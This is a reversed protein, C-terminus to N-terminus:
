VVIRLACGKVQGGGFGQNGWGAAFREDIIAGFFVFCFRSLFSRSCASAGSLRMREGNLAGNM